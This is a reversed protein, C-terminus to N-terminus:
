RISRRRVGLLMAMQGNHHMLEGLLVYVPERFPRMSGWIMIEKNLDDDSLGRLLENVKKKAAKLDKRLEELNHKEKEYTDDWGVPNYTGTILQPILLYAIRTTHTLIWHISNAEEVPKWDFSEPTIQDATQIVRDIIYDAFGTLVEM